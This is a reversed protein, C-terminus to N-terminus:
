LLYCHREAKAKRAVIYLLVWVIHHLLGLLLLCLATIHRWWNRRPCMIQVFQYAHTSLNLQISINEVDGEHEQALNGRQERETRIRVLSIVARLM